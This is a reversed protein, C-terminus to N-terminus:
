SLLRLAVQPSSNAQATMATGAQVLINWRALAASEKAVDVDAIRSNAAELNTRNTTLLEGAFQLRSSDAGNQARDSAVNKIADTITTLSVSTLASVSTAATAYLSTGVDNGLASKSLAVTQAGDESTSVSLSTDASTATAGAFLANGNFKEGILNGLQLQLAGFEKNYNSIDDSNKTVDQSLTKLESMRDLIKGATGLAGDQVQLFSIANSINNSAADTRKITASLRMSVGLGGADDAPAVIRQGSSLRALSKQLMANTSNLNASAVTAATNTNISISM